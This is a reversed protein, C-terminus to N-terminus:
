FPVFGEIIDACPEDDPLWATFESAAHVQDLHRLLVPNWWSIDTRELQTLKIHRWCCERGLKCHGNMNHDYCLGPDSKGFDLWRLFRDNSLLKINIKGSSSRGDITKYTGNPLKFNFVDQSYVHIPRPMPM